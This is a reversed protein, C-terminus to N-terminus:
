KFLFLVCLCVLSNRESIELNKSYELKAREFKAGAIGHRWCWFAIHLNSHEIRKTQRQLWIECANANIRYSNSAKSSSKTKSSFDFVLKVGVFAVWINWARRKMLEAANNLRQVLKFLSNRRKVNEVELCLHGYRSLVKQYNASLSSIVDLLQHM